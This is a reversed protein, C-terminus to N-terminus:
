YPKEANCLGCYVCEVKSLNKNFAPIVSSNSGRFAFDIAGIGQIENCARVCDGCLICKNPDRVLCENSTDVPKNKDEHKFRVDTVNMRRTLEQLKCSDSKECTTCGQHHNALLLELYIKRMKRLKDTHTKIVMGAKPLTSCSTVIGMGEIDVICLRCAGYISLDSHYCFTPLDINANRIVELLNKENSFEFQRGNITLLKEANM